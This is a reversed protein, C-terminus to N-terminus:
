MSTICLDINLYFKQQNYVRIKPVLSQLEKSKKFFFKM